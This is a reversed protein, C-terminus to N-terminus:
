SQRMRQEAFAGALLLLGLGIFSLVRFIEDLEALDYLVVKVAAIALLSLGGIRLERRGAQLGGVLGGLGVAAWFVSLLV